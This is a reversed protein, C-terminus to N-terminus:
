SSFWCFKPHFVNEFFTEELIWNPFRLFIFKLICCHECVLKNMEPQLLLRPTLQGQDETDAEAAELVQVIETHDGVEAAVM